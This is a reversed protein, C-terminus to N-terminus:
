YTQAPLHYPTGAQYLNIELELQGALGTNSQEGTLRLAHQATEVAESFRGAEAYAAALTHLLAPNEGGTLANAQRALEVAKAGNRLSAEPCAALLWALNNQIAPQAPKIELSQQFHAIAQSMNGKQLFADGLNDHAIWYGPRIEVAKQLYPIAEDVRGLKVLASGLNNCADAFAPKLELAQRYQTIAEDMRGQQQFATGLNNHAQEDERNIELASQFQIIAEDLRGTQRLAYGLNNHAKEYDPKIKLAERYHTIAEDMRGTQQFASGLNFHAEAYNPNIKLTEQFQVIAEDMKGKEILATGLNIHAESNNANIELAKQYQTIADDVRGKHDLALGLNYRAVYNATTYALTRPWLTESNRWYGTQIWACVMLAGIVAAMLGGLVARRHQWGLSWDGVAWTGALVLGIGPLYTYRDAHAYYSIQIIGIAPVLMGLYWLWGVLLYPRKKRWALVGMFIAALLVFALGAKWLPLGNPPYLYPIALGSPFVMQRLYIGYSVLANGVRELFPQRQSDLVKEPVLFTAVCSGASLLFLPIKEKVL